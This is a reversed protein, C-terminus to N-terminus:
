SDLSSRRPRDGIKDRSVRPTRTYFPLFFAPLSRFRLKIHVCYFNMSARDEEIEQILM